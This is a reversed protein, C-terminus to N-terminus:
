HNYNKTKNSLEQTVIKARIGFEHILNDHIEETRGGPFKQFIVKFCSMTEEALARQLVDYLIMNEASFIYPVCNVFSWEVFWSYNDSVSLRM